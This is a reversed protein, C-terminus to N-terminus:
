LAQLEKECKDRNLLYYQHTVNLLIWPLVNPIVQQPNNAQKIRLQQATAAKPETLTKCRAKDYINQLFKKGDTFAKKYIHEADNLIDTLLDDILTKSTLIKDRKSYSCKLSKKWTVNKLFELLQKSNFWYNNTKYQKNAHDHNQKSGIVHRLKGKLLRNVQERSVGATLSITDQSMYPQKFKAIALIVKVATTDGDAVFPLSKLILNQIHKHHLPKM